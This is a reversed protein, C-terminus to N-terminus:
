KKKGRSAIGSQKAPEFAQRQLRRSERLIARFIRAVVDAALPGKSKNSVRRLVIQEREKDLIRINGRKKCHAIEIALKARDNLLKVLGLDIEDIRKRRSTLGPDMAM